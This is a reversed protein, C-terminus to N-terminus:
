ADGGEDALDGLPESLIEDITPPRYGEAHLDVHASRSMPTVGNPLEVLPTGRKHHVVQGDGWVEAPDAGGAVANLQHLAVTAVGGDDAPVFIYTYSETTRYDVSGRAEDDNRM